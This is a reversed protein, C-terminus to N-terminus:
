QGHEEGLLRGAGFYLTCFREGDRGIGGAFHGLWAGAARRRLAARDPEPTACLGWVRELWDGLDAIKLDADYVCLDFSRRPNGDERTELLLVQTPDLTTCVRELLAEAVALLRPDPCLGALTEVLGRGGPPSRDLYRAVACRQPHEPDWKFALHILPAPGEGTPVPRPFELYFKYWDGLPDPEVGLHLHCVDPLSAECAGLYQAPLGLDALLGWLVRSAAGRLPPRLSLLFRGDLARGPVLKVSPEWFVTEGIPALREFLGWARPSPGEGVAMPPSQLRSSPSQPM